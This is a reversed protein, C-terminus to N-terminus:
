QIILKHNSVQDGNIAKVVYAGPSLQHNLEVGVHVGHYEEIEHIQTHVTKGSLDFISFQMDHHTVAVFCHHKIM